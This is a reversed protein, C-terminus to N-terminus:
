RAVQHVGELRWNGATLLSAGQLSLDQHFNANTGILDHGMAAGYLDTSTFKGELNKGAVCAQVKSGEFDAFSVGFNKPPVKPNPVLGKFIKTGLGNDGGGFLKNLETHIDNVNTTPNPDSPHDTFCMQLNVARGGTNVSSGVITAKGGIFVTCPDGSTADVVISADKVDLSNKFYYTGSKLVLVRGPKVTVSDYAGPALTKNPSPPKYKPPPPDPPPPLSPVVFNGGADADSDTYNARFTPVNTPKNNTVVKPSTGSLIQASKSIVVPTPASTPTPSAGGSSSGTGGWATTSTSYTSRPGVVVHGDVKTTGGITIAGNIVGDGGVTAKSDEVNSAKGPKGVGPGPNYSGGSASNWADVTSSGQLWMRSEAYAADDFVPRVRRALGVMGAVAKTVGDELNKGTAQLYVTDPVVATNDPAYITTPTATPGSGPTGTSVVMNNTIGVVYSLRSDTPLTGKHVGKHSGTYPSPHSEGVYGDDAALKNMTDQLGAYAAYKAQQDRSSKGVERLNIISEHGVVALMIAMLALMLIVILLISGRCRDSM